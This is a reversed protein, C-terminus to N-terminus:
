LLQIDEHDVAVIDEEIIDEEKIEASASHQLNGGM